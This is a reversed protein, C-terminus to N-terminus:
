RHAAPAAPAAAPPAAAAKAAPAEAPKKFHPRAWLPPDEAMDKTAEANALLKTIFAHHPIRAVKSDEGFPYALSLAIQLFATYMFPGIGEGLLAVIIKQMHPGFETPNIHGALGEPIIVEGGVPHYGSHVLFTGVSIGVSLGLSIACLINNVHVLGALTHVYIFPTQISIATHVERIGIEGGQAQQLVRGFSPTAMPPIEGDESLKALYSAIWVWLLEAREHVMELRHREDPTIHGQEELEDFMAEEMMIKNEKRLLAFELEKTLMVVSLAGYRVVHQAKMGDVGFVLLVNQTNRVANCLKLYGAVTAKWTGLAQTIYFGILFAVFVKLFTAIKRFGSPDIEQPKPYLNVLVGMTIAVLTLYGMVKWLRRSQMVTGASYQFVQWTGLSATDYNIVRTEEIDGAMYKRASAFLDEDSESEPRHHRPQHMEPGWQMLNLAGMTKCDRIAKRIEVWKMKPQGQHETRPPACDELSKYLIASQASRASRGPSQKGGQSRASRRSSARASESENAAAPGPRRPKEAFFLFYAGYCCAGMFIAFVVGLIVTAHESAEAQVAHATVAVVM